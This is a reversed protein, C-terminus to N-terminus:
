LIVITISGSYTGATKGTLNTIDITPYFVFGGRGETSPDINYATVTSGFNAGTQGAIGATDSAFAGTLVGTTSTWTIDTKSITNGLYTMDTGAATASYTGSSRKDWFTIIETPDDFIYQHDNGTTSGYSVLSPYQGLELDFASALRLTPYSNSANKAVTTWSGGAQDSNEMYQLRFYYTINAAKAVDPNVQITFEHEYNTSAAPDFTSGAGVGTTADENHRGATPSNGTLRVTTIPDDDAVIGGNYYRWIAATGGQADVAVPSPFGSDTDYQLRYKVNTGAAGGTEGVVIRLKVANGDYIIRTSHGAPSTDTEEDMIADGATTDTGTTNVPDAVNEADYVRWNRSDPTYVPPPDSKYILVDVYPPLNDAATYSVTLIHFHTTDAAFAGFGKDGQSTASPGNTIVLNDQHNHTTAGGGSAAYSSKGEFFRQYHDEGSGSTRTWGTGPNGTFMALMNGPEAGTSDIKGLIFDTNIPIHAITDTSPNSHTHTHLATAAAPPFAGTNGSNTGTGSGLGQVVSTTHAHSAAGGTPPSLAYPGTRIFADDQASYRTWGSPVTADFLAIAGGPIASAGTPIGADYQIIQIERYSPLLTQADPTATYGTHSHTDSSFATGTSNVGVPTGQAAGVGVSAAHTHTAAGAPNGYSSFGRPFRQYFIDGAAASLSSWGSPVSSGDYFLMMRTDAINLAPADSYSVGLFDLNTTDFWSVHIKYPSTMNGYVQQYNGASTNVASSEASWSSGQDTSKKYYINVSSGMTGRIYFAYVDGNHWDVVMTAQGGATGIDTYVDTTNNWTVNTSGDSVVRATKIDGLSTAPNNNVAVYVEGTLKNLAAGFSGDYTANETAAIRNSFISWSDTAEDYVKSRLQNASIDHNLLLVDGGTLGVPLIQNFDGTVDLGSTTTGWNAGGNTSKYVDLAGTSSCTAFLNGDTNKTVSAGTSTGPAWSTGTAAVATWTTSTPSLTDGNTDLIKFWVDDTLAECAVMYIKTGTIDGPTWQDYWVAVSGWNSDGSLDVEGSWSAGGDTSKKYRVDDGTDDTYFAYGISDTTFVVQPSANQEASNTADYDGNITVQTAHAKPINNLKPPIFNSVGLVLGLVATWTIIQNLHRSKRIM